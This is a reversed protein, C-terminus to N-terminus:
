VRRGNVGGVKFAACSDIGASYGSRRYCGHTTHPVPEGACRARGRAGWEARNALYTIDQRENSEKLEHPPHNHHAAVAALVSPRPAGIASRAASLPMRNTRSLPLGHCIYGCSILQAQPMLQQRRRRHMAVLGVIGVGALPTADLAAIPQASVAAHDLPGKSPEGAEAVEGDTILAAIIEMEGEDDEPASKDIEVLEM